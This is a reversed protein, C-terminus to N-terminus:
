KWTSCDIEYFNDLTEADVEPSLTGEDSRPTKIM